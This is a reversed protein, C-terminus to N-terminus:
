GSASAEGSASGSALGGGRGGGRVLGLVELGLGQGPPYPGASPRRPGFPCRPQPAVRAPPAAPSALLPPPPTPPPASCPSPPPKGSAPAGGVLGLLHSPTHYLANHFLPMHGERSRVGHQRMQQTRGSNVHGDRAQTSHTHARTCTKAKGVSRQQTKECRMQDAGRARELQESHGAMAAVRVSVTGHSTKAFFSDRASTSGCLM